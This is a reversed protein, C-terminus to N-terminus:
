FYPFVFFFKHKHTYLENVQPLAYDNREREREAERQRRKRKKVGFAEEVVAELRSAKTSGIHKDNGDSFGGLCTPRISTHIHLCQLHSCVCM